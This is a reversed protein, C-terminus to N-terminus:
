LPLLLLKFEVHFEDNVRIIGALKQPPSLEFDSFQFVRGGNLQIANGQLRIFSYNLEFRRVRGALEVEVLGKLDDRPGNLTPFRDLTLFKINLKPHAKAQVTKRLDNTLFKNHCDFANVDISLSGRLHVPKGARDAFCILTDIKNYSSIDCGFKNVNSSGLIRLTSSKQVAWRLMEKSAGAGRPNDGRHQFSVLPCALLVLTIIKILRKMLPNSHLEQALAYYM